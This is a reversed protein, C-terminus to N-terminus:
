GVMPADGAQSREQGDREPQCEHARQDHQRLKDVPEQDTGCVGSCRTRRVGFRIEGRDSRARTWATVLRRLARAILPSTRVPIFRVSIILPLFLAPALAPPRCTRLLGVKVRDVLINMQCLLKTAPRPPSSGRFM